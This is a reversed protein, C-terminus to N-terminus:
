DSERFRYGIGSETFILTPQKPDIELKRRLQGIYVRLYEVKDAYVPGWVENLLQQQTVVKGANTALIRVIDYEHKTLKVRKNNVFVAHQALDVSLHTFKLIPSIDKAKALAYRLAVNIRAMLENANFPKTVYDNAGANLSSVIDHETDRVSLIIIPVASWERIKQLVDLGQMDPLGLDLLILDPKNLAAKEIGDQGNDAEVVEYNHAKLTISLFRRIQAEDDIILIIPGPVKM